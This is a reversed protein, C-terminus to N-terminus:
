LLHKIQDYNFTYTKKNTGNHSHTFTYTKLAEKGYWGIIYPMPNNPGYLFINNVKYLKRPYIDNISYANKWWWEVSKDPYCCNDNCLINDGYMKHPLCRVVKKNIDNTNPKNYLFLDIFPYNKDKDLILRLVRPHITDSLIYNYKSFEDALNM